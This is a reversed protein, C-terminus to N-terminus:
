LRAVFSSCRLPRDTQRSDDIHKKLLWNSLYRTSMPVVDDSHLIMSVHQDPRLLLACGQHPSIGLKEYAHGHATHYTEDDAFVKDYDWGRIDDWPHFVDPLQQFDIEYRPSAHVTFVELHGFTSLPSEPTRLARGLELYRSRATEDKLNGPFVLLRWNGNSCLLEHINWGRGDAQNVVSCDQIRKGLTVETALHQQNYRPDDSMHSDIFCASIGSLEAHEVNVAESVAVQYEEQSWNMSTLPEHFFSLSIPYLMLSHRLHSRIHYGVSVYRQFHEDFDILFEAVPRRDKEYTSLLSPSAEDNIVAALKWGLNYADQISVNLGQGAKPSHTHIADGLIFVREFASFSSAIRQEVPYFSSWYVPARHELRFPRMVNQAANITYTPGLPKGSPTTPIKDGLQVYLRVMGAERPITM